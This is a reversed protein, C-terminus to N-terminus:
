RARYVLAKPYTTLLEMEERTLVIEKTTKDYDDVCKWVLDRLEESADSMYRKLLAVHGGKPSTIIAWAGEIRGMWNEDVICKYKSM